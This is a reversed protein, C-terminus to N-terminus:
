SQDGKTHVLQIEKCGTRPHEAKNILKRYFVSIISLPSLRDLNGQIGWINKYVRGQAKTFPRWRHNEQPKGEPYQPWKAMCAYLKLVKPATRLWHYLSQCATHSAPRQSWPLAIRFVFRASPFKGTFDASLTKWPAKHM